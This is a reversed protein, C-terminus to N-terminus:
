LQEQTAKNVDLFTNNDCYFILEYWYISQEYNLEYTKQVQITLSPHFGKEM